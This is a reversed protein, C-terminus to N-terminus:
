NHSFGSIDINVQRPIQRRGLKLLVRVLQGWEPHEEIIKAAGDFFNFASNPIACLLEGGPKLCGVMNRIAMELDPFFMVRDISVVKDFSERWKATFASADGLDELMYEVNDAPFDRNAIELIDPTIDIGQHRVHPIIYLFSFTM